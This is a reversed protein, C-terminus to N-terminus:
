KAGTLKMIFMITYATAIFVLVTTIICILILQLGIESLLDLHKIVQVGAPIFVIAMNQLMFTSVEKIDKEKVIKCVLLLLLLFLAILASPFAFPLLYSIVEAFYSIALIICLQKLYKM